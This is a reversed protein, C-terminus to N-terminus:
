KDGIRRAAEDNEKIKKDAAECQSTLVSTDLTIASERARTSVTLKASHLTCRYVIKKGGTYMVKCESAM